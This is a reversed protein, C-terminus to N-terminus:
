NVHVFMSLLGEVAEKEVESVDVEEMPQTTRAPPRTGNGGQDFKSQIRKTRPRGISAPAEILTRPTSATTTAADEYSVPVVPACASLDYAAIMTSMWYCRGYLHKMADAPTRIYQKEGKDDVGVFLREHNNNQAITKYTMYIAVLHHCPKLHEAYRHCASCARTVFDTRHVKASDTFTTFLGAEFNIVNVTVKRALGKVDEFDAAAHPTLLRLEEALMRVRRAIKEVEEAYLVSAHISFTVLSDPPTDKRQESYKSQEQEAFSMTRGYTASMDGAAQLDLRARRILAYAPDVALLKALAAPNQREAAKIAADYEAQTGACVVDNFLKGGKGWGKSNDLWHTKCLMHFAEKCDERFSKWIGSGQDSITVVRKDNVVIGAEELAKMGYSINASTEGDAIIWVLTQNTNDGTTCVYVILKYKKGCEEKWFGGDLSILPRAFGSKWVSVANQPIIYLRRLTGDDYHEIDTYSGSNLKNYLELLGEMQQLKKVFGAASLKKVVKKARQLAMKEAGSTDPGRGNGGISCNHDTRLSSIVDRTKGKLASQDSFFLAALTGAGLEGKDCCNANHVPNSSDEHVVM